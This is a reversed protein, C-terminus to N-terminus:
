SIRLKRIKVTTLISGRVAKNKDRALEYIARALANCQTSPDGKKTIYREAGKKLAEKAFEPGGTGSFFIFPMDANRSQRLAELFDMGNMGPMNYDSVVVDFYENELKEVAEEPSLVSVIEFDSGAERKLFIRTIELHAPEDDVHLVRIPMANMSKFDKIM